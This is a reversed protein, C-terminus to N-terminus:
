RARCLAGCKAAPRQALFGQGHAAAALSARTVMQHVVVIAYAQLDGASPALSATLLIKDLKDQEVATEQYARISRRVYVADFFEM